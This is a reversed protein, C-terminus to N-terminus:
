KVARDRCVVFKGSVGDSVAALLWDVDDFDFLFSGRFRLVVECVLIEDSVDGSRPVSRLMSSVLTSAAAEFLLRGLAQLFVDFFRLVVERILIEDSSLSLSSLTSIKM